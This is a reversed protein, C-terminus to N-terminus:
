REDETLAELATRVANGIVKGMCAFGNDTPHVGDVTCDFYPQGLFLSAGDVYYTKLDGSRRAKVYTDMVVCRSLMEGERDPKFDPRTVLIIPLGPRKSRVYDFFPKHTRELEGPNPANHDYDYVFVSMDLKSIYEAMSMEAHCNGSFGLNIYDCDLERSIYAEYTNGPRSACYGNTISSGYFVVPKKIRYDPAKEIRCGKEVGIYLEYLSAGVPMNVCIEQMKGCGGVSVKGIVMDFRDCCPPVSGAFVEKGLSDRRYVDFGASLLRTYHHPLTQGHELAKVAVSPSDTIFRVRGGAPNLNLDEVGKSVLAATEPPMRKFLGEEEPKYLGHITFPAKRTNHWEYADLGQNATSFDVGGVFLRDNENVGAGNNIDM